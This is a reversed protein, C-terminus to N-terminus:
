QGITKVLVLIKKSMQDTGIFPIKVKEEGGAKIVPPKGKRPVLHGAAKDMDELFINVRYRLPDATTNKIGVEFILAPQGGHKGLTCKFQTVQAEKAIQWEIEAACEAQVPASQGVATGALWFVGMVCVIAVTVLSVSKKPKM